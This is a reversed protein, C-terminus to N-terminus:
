WGRYYPRNYGYHAAYPEARYAYPTPAVYGGYIIPPPYVVV